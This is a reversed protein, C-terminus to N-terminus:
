RGEEITESAKDIRQQRRRDYSKAQKLDSDGIYNMATMLDGTTELVNGMVMRRGGHGSRYAEHAIGKREVGKVVVIAEREAKTFLYHWSSYSYAQTKKKEGFLVWPSEIQEDHIEPDRIWKGRRPGDTVRVRRRPRMVLHRDAWFRAVVLAAVMGHTIPHVVDKKQKQYKRDWTVTGAEWDIDTWRLHRTANARQGHHQILMMMVWPRWNKAAFLTGDMLSTPKFTRMMAEWEETSYEGPELVEADAPSKWVFGALVNKAILERSQGWNYITRVASLVQRVSNIAYGAEKSEQKFKDIDHLTTEDVISDPKKFVEWLHWRDRYNRRTPERIDDTYAPSATYHEWLQRLTIRVPKAPNKREEAIRARENHYTEGWTKAEERGEPTNAFVKKHEVRELDRYYVEVRDRRKDLRVRVMDGRKGWHALLKRKPSM